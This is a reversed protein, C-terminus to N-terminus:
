SIDKPSSDLFVCMLGPDIILKTINNVIMAAPWLVPNKVPMGLAQCALWVKHSLCVLPWFILTCEQYYTNLDVDFRKHLPM